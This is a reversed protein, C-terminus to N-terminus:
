VGSLLRRGGSTAGDRARAGAAPRPPPAPSGGAPPRPAAAAASTRPSLGAATAAGRRWTAGDCRRGGRCRGPVRPSVWCSKNNM